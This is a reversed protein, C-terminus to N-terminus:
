KNASFPRFTLFNSLGKRPQKDDNEEKFGLRALLRGVVTLQRLQLGIAGSFGKKENYEKFFTRFIASFKECHLFIV